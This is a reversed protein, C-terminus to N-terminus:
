SLHRFFISQFILHHMPPKADPPKLVSLSLAVPALAAFAPSDASGQCHEDGATTFRELIRGRVYVEEYSPGGGSGGM